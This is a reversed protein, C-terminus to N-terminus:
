QLRAEQLAAGGANQYSLGHIGNAAAVAAMGASQPLTTYTYPAMYNAAAGTFLKYQDTILDYHFMRQPFICNSKLLTYTRNSKGAAAAASSYPYAEYGAYQGPYPAAAAAAVANQKLHFFCICHIKCEIFARFKSFSKVAKGLYKM